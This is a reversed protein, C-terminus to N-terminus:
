TELITKVSSRDYSIGSAPTALAVMPVAIENAPPLWQPEVGNAFSWRIWGSLAPDHMEVKYGVFERYLPFVTGDPDQEPDGLDTIERALVIAWRGIGMDDTVIEEVVGFSGLDLTDRVFGAIGVYDVHQVVMAPSGIGQRHALVWVASDSVFVIANPTSLSFRVGRHEITYVLMDLDATFAQLGPDSEAQTWDTMTVNSLIPM